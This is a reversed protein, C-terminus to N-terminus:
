KRFCFTALVKGNQIHRNTRHVKHARRAKRDVFKQTKREKKVQSTTTMSLPLLLWTSSSSTIAFIHLLLNVSMKLASALARACARERSVVFSLCFVFLLLQYYIIKHKKPSTRHTNPPAWVTKTYKNRDSRLVSGTTKVIHSLLSYIKLVTVRWDTELHQNPSIHLNNSISEGNLSIWPGSPWNNM